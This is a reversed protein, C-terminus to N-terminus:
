YGDVNIAPIIVIACESILYMVDPEQKIYGYLLRLITYVSMSVTSIERPHHLGNILIAPKVMTAEKSTLGTGLLYGMMDREEYTKGVTFKRLLEPFQADLDNM